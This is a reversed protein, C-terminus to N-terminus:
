EIEGDMREKQRGLKEERGGGAGMKRGSSHRCRDKPTCLFPLGLSPVPEPSLSLMETEELSTTSPNYLGIIIGVNIM